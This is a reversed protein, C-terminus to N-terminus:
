QLGALYGLSCEFSNENYDNTTDDILDQALSTASARIENLFIVEYETVVYAVAVYEKTLNAMSVGKRLNWIYYDETLGEVAGAEALTPHDKDEPIDYFYNKVNLGDVLDYKTELKDQGLYDTTSLLIGYREIESEDNLRDWLATSVYGGFRINVSSFEFTTTSAEGEWKISVSSLYLAGSNSRIGIFTYNGSIELETSTGYKISGVKTGKPSNYLETPNTYATTDGYIDITRGSATASNWVVSVKAARGGSSTTVIGSNSNNSRLQISDNGGASQGAYVASSNSTKNSWSGYDTSSIGTFEKDLVDTVDNTGQSDIKTYNYSLEAHTTLANFEEVPTPGSPTDSGFSYLELETIMVALTTQFTIENSASDLDFTYTAFASESTVSEASTASTIRVQAGGNVGLSCTKNIWGAAKVVVRSIYTNSTFTLKMTCNNSVSGLKLLNYNSWSVSSWTGSAGILPNTGTGTIDHSLYKTNSSGLSSSNRIFTNMKTENYAEYSTLSSVFDFKEIFNYTDPTTSTILLVNPYVRSNNVDAYSLEYISNNYVKGYGYAVVELGVLANDAKYDESISSDLGTAYLEFAQSESGDDSQLWITYNDYKSVYSSSSVVGKVYLPEDTINSGNINLVAKAEAINLPNDESGYNVAVASSTVTVNCQGKVSSNSSSTATITANGASVATVKGNQNVTAVSTNSSSWTIADTANTPTLSAKLQSQQDKALELSSPSVTINTASIPTYGSAPYATQCASKVSESASNGFIKWALEPHDVFPNRNRQISDEAYNNRNGELMDPKDMTHWELLTDYSEFVDLIDLMSTSKYAYYATWLYMIIRAVDGKVVDLPEFYGGGTYGWVMNNFNKVTTHDTNGYPTNGRSSNTSGYTPRIHLLDAGGKTKGWYDNSLSQPWVHERNWTSNSSANKTVSDRTYLYVMNNPNTPDEDADQLVSGLEGEGSGGYTYWARPLILSTLSQRLAGTMGESANFNISNYYSGSYTYPAYNGVYQTAEVEVPATQQHVALSTGLSFVTFLVAIKLLRNNRKM